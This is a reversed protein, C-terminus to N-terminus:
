SRATGALRLEDARICRALRGEWGALEPHGARCADLAYACRPAFRCADSVGLASHSPEQLEVARPGRGLMYPTSALLAETYPHRPQEFVEYVSGQEVIEGAYM